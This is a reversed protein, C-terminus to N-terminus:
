VALQPLSGDNDAGFDNICNVGKVFLIMYARVGVCASIRANVVCGFASFHLMAVSRVLIWTTDVCDLEMECGM